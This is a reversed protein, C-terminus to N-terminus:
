FVECPIHKDSSSSSLMSTEMERQQALRQTVKAKNPSPCKGNEHRPLCYCDCDCKNLVLLPKELGNNHEYWLQCLEKNRNMFALARQRQIPATSANCCSSSLFKAAMFPANDIGFEAAFDESEIRQAEELLLQKNTAFWCVGYYLTSWTMKFDVFIRDIEGTTYKDYNDDMIISSILPEVALLLSTSDVKRGNPLLQGTFSNCYRTWGDSEQAALAALNSDDGARIRKLYQLFNSYMTHHSPNLQYYCIRSDAIHIDRSIELAMGEDCSLTVCFKAGEIDSASVRSSIVSEGYNLVYECLGDHKDIVIQVTDGQKLKRFRKSNSGNNSRKQGDKDFTAILGAYFNTKYRWGTDDNTDVSNIWAFSDGFEGISHDCIQSKENAIIAKIHVTLMLRYSCSHLPEIVTVLWNDMIVSSIIAPSQNCTVNTNSSLTSKYDVNRKYLVLPSKNGYMYPTIFAKAQRQMMADSEAAILNQNSRKWDNNESGIIRNFAPTALDNDMALVAQLPREAEPFFSSFLSNRCYENQKTCIEVQNSHLTKWLSAADTVGQPVHSGYVNLPQRTSKIHSCVQHPDFSYTSRWWNVLERDVEIKNRDRWSNALARLGMETEGSSTIIAVCSKLANTPYMELFKAQNKTVILEHSWSIKHGCPCPVSDCGDGKICAVSCSPCIVIDNSLNESYVSCTKGSHWATKCRFCHSVNCCKTYFNPYVNYYRLQLTARREPDPLLHLISLLVSWSKKVDTAGVFENQFLTVIKDLM